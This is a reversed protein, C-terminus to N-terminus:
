GNGQELQDLRTHIAAILQEAEARTQVGLEDLDEVLTELRDLREMLEYEGKPLPTEQM